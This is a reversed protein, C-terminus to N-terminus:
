GFGELDINNDLAADLLNSGIKAKAPRKVGDRDIFYIMVTNSSTTSEYRKIGLNNERITLYPKNLTSFSSKAVNINTLSGLLRFSSRTLKALM